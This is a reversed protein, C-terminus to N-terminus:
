RVMRHACFIITGCQCIFGDFVNFHYAGNKYVSHKRPFVRHDHQCDNKNYQKLYITIM